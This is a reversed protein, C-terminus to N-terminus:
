HSDGIVGFKVLFLYISTLTIVVGMIRFTFPAREERYFWRMDTLGLTGIRWILKGIRCFYIGIKHSFIIFSVGIASLVIPLLWPINAVSEQTM